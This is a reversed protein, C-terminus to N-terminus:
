LNRVARRRDKSPEDPWESKRSSGGAEKV